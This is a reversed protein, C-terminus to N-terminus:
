LSCVPFRFEKQEGFELFNCILQADVSFDDNVKGLVEVYRMSPDISTGPAHVTVNARDSAEIVMEGEVASVVRGVLRVTKQACHELMAKNVRPTAEPTAAAAQQDM